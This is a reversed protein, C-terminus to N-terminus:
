RGELSQAFTVIEYEQVDLGGVFGAVVSIYVQLELSDLIEVASYHSWDEPLHALPVLRYGDSQEGVM